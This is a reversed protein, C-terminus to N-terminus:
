QKFLSKGDHLVGAIQAHRMLFDHGPIHPFGRFNISNQFKNKCTEFNKDCGAFLCIEDGMQIPGITGTWLDFHHLGNPLIKHAKIM